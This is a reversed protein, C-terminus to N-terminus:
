QGALLNCEDIVAAYNEPKLQNANRVKYKGGLLRVVPDMGKKAYLLQIASYVHELTVSKTSQQHLKQADKEAAKRKDAKKEAVSYKAKKQGALDPEEVKKKKVTKKKAAKKQPTPEEKPESEDEDGFISEASIGKESELEARLAQEQEFTEKVREATKEYQKAKRDVPPATEVPTAAVKPIALANAADLLKNKLDAMTAATIQFQIM